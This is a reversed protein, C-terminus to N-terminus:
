STVKKEVIHKNLGWHTPLLQVPIRHHDQGKEKELGLRVWGERDGRLGGSMSKEEGGNSILRQNPHRKTVPQVAGDGLKRAQEPCSSLKLGISQCLQNAWPGAPVM